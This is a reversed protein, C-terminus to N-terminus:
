MGRRKQAETARRTFYDETTEGQPTTGTQQTTSQVQQPTLTTSHLVDSIRTTADDKGAARLQQSVNRLNTVEADVATRYERLFDSSNNIRGASRATQIRENVPAQLYREFPAIDPNSARTTQNIRDVEASLQSASIAQSYAEQRTRDLEPQLSKLINNRMSEQAGKYDGKQIRDVWELEADPHSVAAAPQAMSGKLAQLEGQIAQLTQTLEPPVVAAPAGQSGYLRTYRAEATEEAAPTITTNQTTDEM